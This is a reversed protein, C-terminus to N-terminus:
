ALRGGAARLRHPTGGGGGRDRPPPAPPLLTNPRPAGAGGGSERVRELVAMARARAGEADLGLRFRLQTDMVALPLLTLRAPREEGVLYPRFPRAIGAAFGPAESFGLSADYGAGAAELWRVTEHYRFRLYLFRGGAVPGAEPRLRAVDAALAAAG